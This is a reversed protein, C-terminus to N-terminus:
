NAPADKRAQLKAKCAKLLPPPPSLLQVYKPSVVPIFAHLGAREREEEEEEEGREEEEKQGM